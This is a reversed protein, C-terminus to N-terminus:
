QFNVKLKENKAFDILSQRINPWSYEDDHLDQLKALFDVYKTMWKPFEDEYEQLLTYIDRDEYKENYKKDPILHGLACKLGEHRYLCEGNEPNISPKGQAILASAVKDFIEQRSKM